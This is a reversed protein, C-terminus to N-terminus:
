ERGNYVEELGKIIKGGGLVKVGDESYLVVSQEPTIARQPEFFSLSFGHETVKNMQANIFGTSYRIKCKINTGEPVVKGSVYSSGNAILGNSNLKEGTTVWVTNITKEIKSVYLPEENSTGLGKRQGLTYYYIPKGYGLLKGSGQLRIDVGRVDTKIWETIFDGHKGNPVFCIDQSEAKQAIELGKSKALERVEKKCIDGLPFLVYELQQQTLQYLFYSQDKYPDSGKWLEWCASSTQWKKRVYHGTALYDFGMERAKDLWLGFKLIHNCYICPNPTLGNQYAQCFYEIINTAFFEQLNWVHHKIDLYESMQKAGAIINLGNDISGSAINQPWIQMTFGEVEYGEEKLLLAAMSSDLGGSM